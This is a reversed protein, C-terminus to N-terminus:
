LSHIPTSPVSFSCWVQLIYLMHTSLSGTSMHIMPQTSSVDSVVQTNEDASSLILELYGNPSACLLCLIRPFLSYSRGWYMCGSISKVLYIVVYLKIIATNGLLQQISFQRNTEVWQMLCLFMEYEHYAVVKVHQFSPKFYGLSTFEWFSNYM